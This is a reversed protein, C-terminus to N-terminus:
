STSHRSRWRSATRSRSLRLSRSSRVSRLPPSSFGSCFLWIITARSFISSASASSVELLTQLNTAKVGSFTAQQTRSDLIAEHLTGNLRVNMLHQHGAPMIEFLTSKVDLSTVDQEFVYLIRLQILSGALASYKELTTRIPVAPSTVFYHRQVADFINGIEKDLDLPGPPIVPNQLERVNLTLTVRVERGQIEIKSDSRSVDHACALGTFVLLGLFTAPIRM